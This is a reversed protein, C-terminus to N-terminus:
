ALSYISKRGEAKSKVAKEKRLKHLAQQVVFGIKKSKTKYEGAKVKKMVEEVIDTIFLGDPKKELIKTVIGTMTVRAGDTETKVKATRKKRTKVPKEAQFAFGLSALVEKNQEVLKRGQKQLEERKVQLEKIADDNKQIEALLNQLEVM